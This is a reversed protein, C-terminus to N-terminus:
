KRQPEASFEIREHAQAPATPATAAPAVPAAVVVPVPEAAAVVAQAAEAKAAPKKWRRNAPEALEAPVPAPKFGEFGGFSGEAREFLSKGKEGEPLPIKSQETM